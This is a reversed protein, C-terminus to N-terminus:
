DKEYKDRDFEMRKKKEEIRILENELEERRSRFKVILAQLYTLHEDIMKIEDGLAYPRHEAFEISTGKYPSRHRGAVFGEVVRTAIIELQGLQSVVIPDLLEPHASAGNPM